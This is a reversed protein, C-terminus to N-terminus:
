WDQLLASESCSREKWRARRIRWILVLQLLAWYACFNEDPRKLEPQLHNINSLVAISRLPLARAKSYPDASGGRGREGGRLRLPRRVECLYPPAIFSSRRLIHNCSSPSSIASYATISATM